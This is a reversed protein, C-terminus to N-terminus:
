SGRRRRKTSRTYMPFQRFRRPGLHLSPMLDPRHKTPPAWRSLPGGTMRSLTYLLVVGRRVAACLQNDITFLPLITFRTPFFSTERKAIANQNKRRRDFSIKPLAERGSSCHHRPEPAFSPFKVDSLRGKSNKIAPPMLSNLVM